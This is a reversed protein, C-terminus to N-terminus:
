QWREIEVGVAATFGVAQTKEVRIYVGQVGSLSLCLQALDNALAEVTQRQATEIHTKLLHATKEYDVCDAIQDTQAAKRTDTYLAVNVVVEQPTTREQPYIGLIANVRLDKIFIKDM